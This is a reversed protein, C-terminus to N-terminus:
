LKIVGTLVLIAGWLGTGLAIGTLAGRAGRNRCAPPEVFEARDERLPLPALEGVYVQTRSRSM